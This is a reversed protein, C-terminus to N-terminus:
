ILLLLLLLELFRGDLLRDILHRFVVQAIAPVILGDKLSSTPKIFLETDYFRTRKACSILKFSTMRIVMCVYM